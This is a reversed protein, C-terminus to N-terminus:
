YELGESRNIKNFVITFLLSFVLMTIAIATGEGLKNDTFAREYMRIALYSSKVGPGGGTMVYAQDFAKVSGTFCLVVCVGILNKLMPIVIKLFIQFSNAGDMRASELIDEPISQVGALFIIIYHGIYQWIMPFMVAYLVTGSDSLWNRTLGHLGLNKLMLNFPGFDGNLFILFMTGIATPSIVAPLFYILICQVTNGFCICYDKNKFIRQFHRLGIFEPMGAGSWKTLSYYISMAIPLIVFGLYLVMAPSLFVASILTNRKKTQTAYM